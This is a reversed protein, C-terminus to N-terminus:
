NTWATLNPSTKTFLISVIIEEEEGKKNTCNKHHATPLAIYHGPLPENILMPRLWCDVKPKDCSLPKHKCRAQCLEIFKPPACSIDPKFKPCANNGRSMTTSHPQQQSAKAPLITSSSAHYSPLTFQLVTLSYPMNNELKQRSLLEQVGAAHAHYM